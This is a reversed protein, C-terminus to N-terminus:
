FYLHRCPLFMTPLPPQLISSHSFCETTQRYSRRVTPIKMWMLRSLCLMQTNWPCIRSSYLLSVLTLKKPSILLLIKRVLPAIMKCPGCWTATFDIVVLKGEASARMILADVDEVTEPEQVAGGRVVSPLKKTVGFVSSPNNACSSAQSTSSSAGPKPMAAAMHLCVVSLFASFRM